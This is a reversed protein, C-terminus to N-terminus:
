NPTESCIYNLNNNIASKYENNAIIKIEINDTVDLSIEKRVNQIKNM